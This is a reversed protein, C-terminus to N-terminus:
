RSSLPRNSRIDNCDNLVTQVAFASFGFTGFGLRRFCARATITTAASPTTGVLGGFSSATATTSRTTVLRSRFTIRVRGCEFPSPEALAPVLVAIDM